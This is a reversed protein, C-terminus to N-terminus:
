ASEIQNITLLTLLECANTVDDSKESSLLAVITPVAEEFRVLTKHYLDYFSIYDKIRFIETKGNQYEDQMTKFEVSGQLM